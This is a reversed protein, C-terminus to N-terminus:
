IERKNWQLYQWTNTLECCHKGFNLKYNSKLCKIKSFNVTSASLVVNQWMYLNPSYFNETWFFRDRLSFTDRKLLIMTKSLKSIDCYRNIRRAIEESWVSTAAPLHKEFCTYKFIECYECSFLQTLTESWSYKQSSSRIMIQFLYRIHWRSYKRVISECYEFRTYVKSLFKLLFVIFDKSISLLKENKTLLLLPAEKSEFFSLRIFGSCGCSCFGLLKM